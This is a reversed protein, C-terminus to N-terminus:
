INKEDASIDYFVLNKGANRISVVRGAVAVIEDLFTGKETCKTEYQETIEPILGTIQFKHPYPFFEKDKKLEMVM